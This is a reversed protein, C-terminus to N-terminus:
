SDEAKAFQPHRAFNPVGVSPNYKYVYVYAVPKVICM